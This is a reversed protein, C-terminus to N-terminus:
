LVKLAEENQVSEVDHQLHRIQMIYSIEDLVHVGDELGPISVLPALPACGGRHEHNEKLCLGHCSRIQTIKGLEAGRM